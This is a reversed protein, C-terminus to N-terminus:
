CPTTSSGMTPISNRSAIASSTRIGRRTRSIARPTSASPRNRRTPTTATASTPTSKSDGKVLELFAEDRSEKHSIQVLGNDVHELANDIMGKLFAWDGTAEEGLARLKKIDREVYVQAPKYVPLESNFTGWM